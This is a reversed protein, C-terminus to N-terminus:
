VPTAAGAQLAKVQATLSAVTRELAAIRDEPGPKDLDYKETLWRFLADYAKQEVGYNLEVDGRNNRQLGLEQLEALSVRFQRQLEQWASVQGTVAACLIERAEKLPKVHHVALALVAPLWKRDMRRLEFYRETEAIEKDSFFYRRM